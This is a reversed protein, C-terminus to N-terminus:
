LCLDTHTGLWLGSRLVKIKEPSSVRLFGSIQNEGDPLDCDDIYYEMRETLKSSPYNLMWLRGLSNEVLYRVIWHSTFLATKAPLEEATVKGGKKVKLDIDAKKESIYYQYLWGIVEVDKCMEESMAERMAHLLSAESLLDDPMLIETYDAIKEFLFPMMRHYHNCVGVLLLRYAEQQPDSSALDGSLLAFVRQGNVTHRLDEVIHGQKADQLIEPQTHGPLPSVVGAHTYHNADMFRLACFRNFWTYSVRDVVAQKSSAKIAKKLDQIADAKERLEASDTALVQELKAGVEDLLQRRAAQAFHELAKTNM